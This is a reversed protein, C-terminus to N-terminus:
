SSGCWRGAAPAMSLRIASSPPPARGLAGAAPQGCQRVGAPLLVAALAMLLSLHEM